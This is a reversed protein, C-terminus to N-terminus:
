YRAGGGFPSYAIWEHNRLFYFVCYYKLGKSHLVVLLNKDIEEKYKGFFFDIFM